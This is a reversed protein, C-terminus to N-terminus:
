FLTVSGSLEIRIAAYLEEVLLVSLWYVNSNNEASLSVFWTSFNGAHRFRGEGESVRVILRDLLLRDTNTHRKRDGNTRTDAFQREAGIPALHVAM